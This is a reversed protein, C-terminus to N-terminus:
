FLLSIYFTDSLSPLSIMDITIEIHASVFERPIDIYQSLISKQLSFAKQQRFSMGDIVHWKHIYPSLLNNKSASQQGFRDDNLM